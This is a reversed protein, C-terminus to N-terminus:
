GRQIIELIQDEAIGINVNNEISWHISEPDKNIIPEIVNVSYLDMEIMNDNEDFGPVGDVIDKLVVKAITNNYKYGLNVKLIDGIKTIIKQKM